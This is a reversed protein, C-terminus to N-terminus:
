MRWSHSEIGAPFSDEGKEGVDMSARSIFSFGRQWLSLRDPTFNVVRKWKTGSTLFAQLCLWESIHIWDITFSCYYFVARANFFVKSYKSWALRSKTARRKVSTFELLNLVKAVGANKRRKTTKRRHTELNPVAEALDRRYESQLDYTIDIQTMM